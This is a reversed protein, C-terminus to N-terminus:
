RGFGHCHQCPRGEARAVRRCCGRRLWRRRRTVQNARDRSRGLLTPPPVNRSTSRALLRGAPMRCDHRDIPRLAIRGSSMGRRVAASSPSPGAWSIMRTSSPLGSPLQATTAAAAESVPPDAADPQHPVEALVVCQQHADPMGAVSVDHGEVVVQLVRGLLDSMQHSRRVSSTSTTYPVGADSCCLMQRDAAERTM